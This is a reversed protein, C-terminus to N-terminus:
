RSARLDAFTFSGSQGPSANILDVVFMLSSATAPDPPPGSQRDLPRMRSIPVPIERPRSDLYVSSGWREGGREAYRLQVSVRCPHAASASVLLQTGGPWGRPLDASVAVFQSAKAGAALAYEVSVQRDSASLTATSHPDKEVHWGLDGVPVVDSPTAVSAQTPSSPPRLYVPNTVLWPVPPTGPAGAVQIEIRAAATDPELRTVVEPRATRKVERGDAFVVIEAHPPLAAKVAITGNEARLAVLGPSAVADIVTFVRGQRVANLVERADGDPNGTLPADLIANDTFTRFSAEYSPVHGLTRKRQGTDELGRGIGGHADHAALGVVRRRRALEDWRRLVPVPRDLM